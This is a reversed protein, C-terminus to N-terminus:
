IAARVPWAYDKSLPEDEAGSFTGMRAGGFGAPPIGLKAKIQTSNLLTEGGYEIRDVTHGSAILARVERYRWDLMEYDARDLEPSSSGNHRYFISYM